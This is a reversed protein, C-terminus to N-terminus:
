ILVCGNYIALLMVFYMINVREVGIAIILINSVMVSQMHILEYRATECSILMKQMKTIM